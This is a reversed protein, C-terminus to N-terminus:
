KNILPKTQKIRGNANIIKGNLFSAFVLALVSIFYAILLIINHSKGSIIAIYITSPIVCILAINLKTVINM